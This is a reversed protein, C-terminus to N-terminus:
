IVQKLYYLASTLKGNCFTEQEAERIIQRCNIEFPVKVKSFHGVTVQAKRCTITMQRASFHPTDLPTHRSCSATYHLPAQAM